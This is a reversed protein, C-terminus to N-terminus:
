RLTSNAPKRFPASAPWREHSVRHRFTHIIMGTETKIRVTGSADYVMTWKESGEQMPQKLAKYYLGIEKGLDESKLGAATSVGGQKSWVCEATVFASRYRIMNQHHDGGLTIGDPLHFLLSVYRLRNGINNCPGRRQNQAQPLVQSHPSLM